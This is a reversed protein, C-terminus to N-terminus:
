HSLATKCFTWIRSGRHKGVTQMTLLPFHMCMCRFMHVLKFEEFVNALIPDTPYVGSYMLECKSFPLCLVITAVPLPEQQMYTHLVDRQKNINKYSYICLKLHYFYM